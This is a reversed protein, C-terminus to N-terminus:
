KIKQIEKVLDWIQLEKQGHVECIIQAPNMTKLTQVMTKVSLPYITNLIEIEDAGSEFVLRQIQKSEQNDPLIVISKNFEKSIERADSLWSNNLIASGQSIESIFKMRAEKKTSGPSKSYKAMYKQLDFVPIGAANSLDTGFTSNNASSSRVISILTKM